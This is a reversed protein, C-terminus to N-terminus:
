WFPAANPQNQLRHVIQGISAHEDDIIGDQDIGAPRGAVADRAAQARVVLEQDQAGAHNGGALAIAARDPPMWGILARGARRFTAAEEALVPEAPNTSM